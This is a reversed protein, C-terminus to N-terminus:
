TDPEGWSTLAQQRDVATMIAAYGVIPHSLVARIGTYFWCCASSRWFAAM